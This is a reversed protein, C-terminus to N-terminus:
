ALRIWDLSINIFLDVDWEKQWKHIPKLNLDIYIPENKHWFYDEVINYSIITCEIPDNSFEGDVYFAIITNDKILDEFINM